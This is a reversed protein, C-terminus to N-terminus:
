SKSLIQWMAHQPPFSNVCLVNMCKMDCSMLGCMTKCDVRNHCNVVRDGEERLVSWMFRLDSLLEVEFWGVLLSPEINIYVFWCYMFRDCIPMVNVSLLSM